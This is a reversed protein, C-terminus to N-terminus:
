VNGVIVVVGRDEEKFNEPAVRVQIKHGAKDLSIIEEMIEETLSAAEHESYKGIVRYFKGSPLFRVFRGLSLEKKIDDKLRNVSEPSNREEFSSPM